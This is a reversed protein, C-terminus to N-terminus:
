DDGAIGSYGRYGTKYGYAEGTALHMRLKGPLDLSKPHMGNEISGDFVHDGTINHTHRWMRPAFQHLGSDVKYKAM